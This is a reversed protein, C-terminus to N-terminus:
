RFALKWAIVVTCLLIPSLLWVATNLSRQLERMQDLIAQATEDNM